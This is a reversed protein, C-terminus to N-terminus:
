FADLSSEVYVFLTQWVCTKGKTIKNTHKHKLVYTKNSCCQSDLEVCFGVTRSLIRLKSAELCKCISSSSSSVNNLAGINRSCTLLAEQMPPSVAWKSHLTSGLFSGDNSILLDSFHIM